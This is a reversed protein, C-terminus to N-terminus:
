PTMHGSSFLEVLESHSSEGNTIGMLICLPLPLDQKDMVKKSGMNVPYTM